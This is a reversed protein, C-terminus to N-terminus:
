EYCERKLIGIYPLQRFKEAYDLGYGVLFEDAVEFCCYDPFIPYKRRERKDLLAVIKVSKAGRRQLLESLKSLTFGSDVIDEVILVDRGCIEQSLDKKIVLDGSSVAGSGYTSLSMFDFEVPIKMRRMLDAFFMVSGKLICVAVLDGDVFDRDIKEAIEGIRTQIEKETFLIRAIAEQM